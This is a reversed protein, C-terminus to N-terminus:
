EIEFIAEIEVSAGLPLQNVGVASRTHRGKEGFVEYLFESAGDAVLHQSTFGSESNVFVQLKIVNSIKSLDKLYFRAASLINIACLKAAEKAEEISVKSGVKGKYILNGDICPIQGSIFLLNGTQKIPIYMAKPETLSYLKVGLDELRKEIDM